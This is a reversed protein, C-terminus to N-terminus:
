FIIKVLQSVENKREYKLYKDSAVLDVNRKELWIKVQSDLFNFIGSVDDYEFNRGAQAEQVLWENESGKNSISLIPKEVALYEYIKGPVIRENNPVRPNLLLVVSSEKLLEISESQTVYGLFEFNEELQSSEIEQWFDEYIHGALKFRLIVDPYVECLRKLANLFGYPSYNALLIGTYAITFAEQPKGKYSKDSFLDGNYGMTHVLIKEADGGMRRALLSKSSRCHTMVFDAKRLVKREFARDINTALRTRYFSKLNFNDTWYDHFDAIWQVGPFKKKIKLGVLHTSQPPGATFVADFQHQGLLIEAQKYAFKNWGLRPDPLLFNGRVFRAVSNLFGKKEKPDSSQDKGKKKGLFKDYLFFLEASNTRYVKTSVAIRELLMYDTFPFTAIKDDITIVHSEIGLQDFYRTIDLWRQVASGGSPPWYYNILLIKKM